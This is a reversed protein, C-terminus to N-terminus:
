TAFQSRPTALNRNHLEPDNIKSHDLSRWRNTTPSVVCAKLHTTINFPTECRGPVVINCRAARM